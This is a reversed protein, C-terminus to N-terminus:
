KWHLVFGYSNGRWSGPFRVTTICQFLTDGSLQAATSNLAHTKLESYISQADRSLKYHSVLLKGKNTKLHDEL